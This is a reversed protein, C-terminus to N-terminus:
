KTYTSTAMPKCQVDICMVKALTFLGKTRGRIVPLHIRKVDSLFTSLYAVGGTMSADVVQGLGQIVYVHIPM